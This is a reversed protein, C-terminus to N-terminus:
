NEGYEGNISRATECAYAYDWTVLKVMGRYIVVYDQNGRRKVYAEM